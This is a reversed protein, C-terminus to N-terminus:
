WEGGPMEAYYVHPTVAKMRELLELYEIEEGDLEFERRITGVLALNKLLEERIVKRQWGVLNAPPGPTAFWKSLAELLRKRAVAKNPADIFFYFETDIHWVGYPFVTAYKTEDIQKLVEPTFGPSTYPYLEEKLKDYKAM